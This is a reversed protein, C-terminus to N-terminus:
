TAWTVSVLLSLYNNVTIIFDSELLSTIKYIHFTNIDNFNDQM